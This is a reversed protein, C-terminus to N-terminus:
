TRKPKPNTIEDWDPWYTAKIRDAYDRLNPCKNVIHVKPETDFPLYLILALVAFLSADVKTPSDGMLFPKTGLQVSCANLEDEVIKLIEERTHRGLGVGMLRGNLKSSLMRKFFANFLPQAFGFTQPWLPIIQDLREYRFKGTGLLLSNEILREFALAVAREGESLVDELSPVNLIRPLEAIVFASDAYEVGNVEVKPLTGEVSRHSIPLDDVNKWQVKAFRLWCELKVCFPSLNPLCKMRPFQFLYVVGPQFDRVFVPRSKKETPM